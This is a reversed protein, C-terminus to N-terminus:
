ENGLNASVEEWLEEESEKCTPAYIYDIASKADVLTAYGHSYEAQSGSNPRLDISWKLHPQSDWNGDVDRRRIIEHGRYIHTKAM